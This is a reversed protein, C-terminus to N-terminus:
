SNNICLRMGGDKILQWWWTPRVDNVDTKKEGNRAYYWMENTSPQVYGEFTSYSDGLISVSPKYQAQCATTIILMSLFLFRRM